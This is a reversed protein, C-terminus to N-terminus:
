DGIREAAGILAHIQVYIDSYDDRIAERASAVDKSALLRVAAGARTKQDTAETYAQM